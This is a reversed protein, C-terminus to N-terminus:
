LQQGTWHYTHPCYKGYRALSHATASDSINSPSHIQTTVPWPEATQALILPSYAITWNLDGLQKCTSLVWSPRLHPHDPLQVGIEKLVKMRFFALSAGTCAVRQPKSALAYPGFDDMHHMVWPSELDGAQNQVLCGDVVLGNFDIVRGGAAAVNAHLEFLRAVENFVRNDEITIGNTAIVLISNENYDSTLNLETGGVWVFKPLDIKRRAIYLEKVGRNVPWMEVSFKKPDLKRIVIQKELLSRVSELSRPDGGPKNTTSNSHKRWHYIIEPIHEIRGGANSIRMVSDWDQCWSTQDDTYLNLHFAAERKIACVHWIYSSDLNLIPDFTARLYPATPIDNVLMDEDSFIMDPQGLREIEHALIQLADIILLDDADVPVIYQSQACELARRMAGAIGLAHNEVVLTANWQTQAKEHIDGIIDDSIAGHAVIIWQAPLLTQQAISDALEDLLTLNSGEYITTLISFSVNTDSLPYREARGRINLDLWDPYTLTRRHLLELHRDRETESVPTYATAADLGLRSSLLQTDPLLHWFRSLFHAWGKQNIRDEPIAEAAAGMFPSFVVRRGAERALAGLWPGLLELSIQERVLEHLVEKLFSLRVICHGSSIASVSHQKWMRAFYGPDSLNRGRDPCDCGDGFGFYRPGDLVESGNHLFGGVMITDPFLEFIGMAEWFWEDSDPKIGDWCLHVLESNTQQLIGALGVIGDDPSLSIVPHQPVDTVLNVLDSGILVSVYQAPNSHKRRFWWDVNYHFFPSSTLEIEPTNAHTLFRQLTTRHSDSIYSKSAINGSTSQSHMRWSYLVEPIHFPVYGAVMFRIFSDWDHSGETGSDSYLDLALAKERDMACLHAIYCSHVFLVPDWGTKFYPVGFHDESLKDEDTYVLAPYRARQLFRTLVHVCDPEIIDDSDLPLIYRGIAHELLYRMGGIIGLNKEVKELRVCPHRAITQLTSCTNRDTSGNDLILWEFNTGGDQLFISSALEELYKPDTNYASTIFSLLGSEQVYQGDHRREELRRKRYYEYDSEPKAPYGYSIVNVPVSPKKRLTDIREKLRPIISDLSENWNSPLNISGTPDPSPLGAIIRGATSELVAAISDPTPSAVMINPSLAQMREATKVSFSNTVVLNGSAAMELPPYSPHPSLMLSLLLDATRVRETYADFNMWPLPNLFTDNGLPVADFKEGMGLIEWSNKHLVGSAVAKRLAAVGMEFLNRHAITPRAYFLLIRKKLGGSGKVKEVVPFYHNRDIAPEFFLAENAFDPQAYCGCSERILYDLLFRTNIVPIHPLGYTELARAQFTSGEHLIPEFDQILYIFQDFSTRQLAYKAIQATWWATALFIDNAGIMLPKSRDTGDLITINARKVPRKHLGDMHAYLADDNFDGLPVGTAILRVLEGTEVLRAALLLATNPGGSMDQVRLSPLLVNIQPHVTFSESLDLYLPPEMHFGPIDINADILPKDNENLKHKPQSAEQLSFIDASSIFGRKVIENGIFRGFRTGRLWRRYFTHGKQILINRLTQKLKSLLSSIM